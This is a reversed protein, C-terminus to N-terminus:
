RESEEGDPILWDINELYPKWSPPASRDCVVVDIQKLSTIKCLAEVGIKSHDAVIIKEKAALLMKGSIGSDELVYETIGSLSIGGPSVFAKNVSFLEMMKECVTGNTSYQEANLEGGLVIM